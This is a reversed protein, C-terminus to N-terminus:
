ARTRCGCYTPKTRIMTPNRTWHGVTSVTDINGTSDTIYQRNASRSSVATFRTNGSAYRLYESLTGRNMGLSRDAPADRPDLISDEALTPRVPPAGKLGQVIRSWSRMKM